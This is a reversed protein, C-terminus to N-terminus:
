KKKFSKSNKLAAEIISLVSDIQKEIECEWVTIVHWGAETLSKMNKEDRLVNKSLKTKWFVTNTDPIRGERCERHYHWFCGHVFIASKYKSFVIDPKGSLNKDHIRYRFGKAFLAKRLMIEPRTDKSRIKSMVESRKAKSWADM